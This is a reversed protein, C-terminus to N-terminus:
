SDTLVGDCIVEPTLFSIVARCGALEVFGLSFSLKWEPRSWLTYRLLTFVRKSEKKEIFTLFTEGESFVEPRM